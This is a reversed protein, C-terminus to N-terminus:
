RNIEEVHMPSEDKLKKLVHQAEVSMKGKLRLNEYFTCNGKTRLDKCFENFEGSRLLHVGPQNCMNRKGIIDVAVLNVNCKTKVKKLTEVAILHQTSRSTLFFITKNKNEKVVYTLAPSLASATKGIGTPAHVLLQGKNQLTTYVQTMFAGQIKRYEQHPFLFEIM